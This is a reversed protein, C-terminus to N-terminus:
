FLAFPLLTVWDGGTELALKTLTEKLTRNMREVQGSSPPNYACHLKWDTGMARALGQSVQSTFAPGNDSGIHEPLGYRPVVEKLLTKAVTLATEGKTPFAEVWGSFTDVMVLLYKYGFNGPKIETLDIEWCRGPQRGRERAGTHHVQCVRCNEAINGATVRQSRFQVQATVLLQLM